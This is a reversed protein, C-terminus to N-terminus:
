GSNCRRCTCIVTYTMATISMGEICDLENQSSSTNPECICKVTSDATISCKNSVCGCDAPVVEVYGDGENWDVFEADIRNLSYGGGGPLYPSDALVTGGGFGGGGGGSGGCTGGGGGFGGLVDAFVNDNDSIGAECFTVSGGKAFNRSQSLLKGDRPEPEMSSKWGAGAGSVHVDDDINPREGVYGRFMGNLNAVDIDTLRANIWRVYFEENTENDQVFSSTDLTYTGIIQSYNLYRSTGGGAGAVLYPESNGSASWIMSAGGGAGGGLLESLSMGVWNQMCVKAADRTNPPNTCLPFTANVDCPGRGKHGVLVLVSDNVGQEIYMQGKFVAGLGTEINCLGRGGSAGAVTVNYLGTSPFHFWQGGLYTLTNNM